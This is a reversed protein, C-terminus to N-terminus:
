PWLLLVKLTIHFHHPVKYLPAEESSVTHLQQLGAKHSARLAATSQPLLLVVSQLPPPAGSQILCLNCTRYSHCNGAACSRCQEKKQRKIDSTFSSLFIATSKSKICGTRFKKLDLKICALLSFFAKILSTASEKNRNGQSHKNGQSNHTSPERLENKELTSTIWSLWM